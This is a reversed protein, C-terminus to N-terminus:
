SFWVRLSVFNTRPLTGQFESPFLDSVCSALHTNMRETYHVLKQKRITNISSYTDKSIRETHHAQNLTIYIIWVLFERQIEPLNISM